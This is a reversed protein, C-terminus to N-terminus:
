VLKFKQNDNGLYEWLQIKTGDDTKGGDVDIVYKKNIASHISVYGGPEEQLFFKQANTGNYLYLQIQTGNAAEGWRADIAFYISGVLKVFSIAGDPHDIITFTQNSQGHAKYLIIKTEDKYKCGEIDLNKNASKSRIQYDFKKKVYCYFDKQIMSSPCGIADLCFHVFDHCNHNFPNYSGANWANSNIIATELKDPSVHTTGQLARLETWNYGTEDKKVKKHREYSKESNAGYEFLDENLLLCSHTIQPFIKSIIVTYGGLDKIGVKFKYTM